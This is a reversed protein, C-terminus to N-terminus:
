NKEAHAEGIHEYFAVWVEAAGDEPSREEPPFFIQECQSCRYAMPEGEFWDTVVIEPKYKSPM